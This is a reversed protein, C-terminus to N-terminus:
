FATALSSGRQDAEHSLWKQLTSTSLGTRAPIDVSPTFTVSDVAPHVSAPQLYKALRVIDSPTVIITNQLESEYVPREIWSCDIFYDLSHLILTEFLVNFRRTIARACLAVPQRSTSLMVQITAVDETCHALNVIWLVQFSVSRKCSKLM